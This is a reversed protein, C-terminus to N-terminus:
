TWKGADAAPAVECAKIDLGAFCAADWIYIMDVGSRIFVIGDTDWYDGGEYCNFIVEM